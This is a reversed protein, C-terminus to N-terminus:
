RKPIYFVPKLLGTYDVDLEDTEYTEKCKNFKSELCTFIM